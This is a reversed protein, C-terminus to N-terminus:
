KGEKVKTKYIVTGILTLGLIISVIWAVREAVGTGVSIIIEAKGTDDEGQKNNGPTSDIDARSAENIVEAIEATNAFIGTSTESMVKSLTLTVERSEGPYIIQGALSQTYLKGDQETWNSNTTELNFGSPLYDVISSVAGPENGENTVKITYDVLVKAGNIDRRHIEIKALNENNFTKENKGKSTYVTVKNVTKQLSLDFKRNQINGSNVNNGQSGNQGNNGGQTGGNGGTNGPPNTDGPNSSPNNASVRLKYTIASELGNSQYTNYVSLYHEFESLNETNETIKIKEIVQITEGAQLEYETSYLYKNKKELSGLKQNNKIISNEIIEAVHVLVDDIYFKKGITGRNTITTTFTIVDGTEAYEKVPTSTQTIQLNIRQQKATKDLSNSYYTNNGVTASAYFSYTQSEQNFDDIYGVNIFPCFDFVKGVAISDVHIQLTNGNEVVDYGDLQKKDKISTGEPLPITVTINNLTHNTLNKVVYNIPVRIGSEFIVEENQNMTTTLKLEADKIKNEMLNITQKDINDASIELTGKTVENNKRDPKISFDYQFSATEGSALNEQNKKMSSLTEDEQYFTAVGDEGTNPQHADVSVISFYNVNSNGSGDLQKAELSLNTVDNGTNNTVKVDYRITQGEYVEQGDSIESGITSPTAVVHLGNVDEVIEKGPNQGQITKIAPGQTAAIAMLQNYLAEKETDIIFETTSTQMVNTTNENTYTMEINSTVNQGNQTPTIDANILVQAGEIGDNFHATQEGILQIEIVKQGNIDILNTAGIEFEDSNLKSISNVNVSEVQEPLKIQLKPNKYLEQKENNSLLVADIEVNTPKLTTIKQTNIELKAESTPEKLEITATSTEKSLNTSLETSATLINANKLTTINQDTKCNLQKTNLVTFIGELQPRSTEIIVGAEGENYNITIIGNEDTETDKTVQSITEGAQNKVTVVFDEGLIKSLEEKNFQTQKYTINQMDNSKIEFKEVGEKYSVEIDNKEKYEIKKDENHYLYGKYLDGYLTTKVTALSGVPNVVVDEAIEKAIETEKSYLYTHSATKLTIPTPASALNTPFNYIITYETPESKWVINGEEDQKNQSVVKIVGTEADYQMEENTAKEGDILVVAWNPKQDLITPVTIEIQEKNQPLTNEVVETTIKQQLLTGNEGLNFFKEISQSLNIDSETSWKPKISTIGKYDKQRQNENEYKGELTIITEKEFYDAPFKDQKKFEIPVELSVEDNSSIKSLKIQNTEENVETIYKNGVLEDKKISFNPNDMTITGDELAVKDNVKIELCLNAIEGIKLHKQRTTVIGKGRFFASFEINSGKTSETEQLEDTATEAISIGTLAYNGTILCFLLLISIIKNVFKSNTLRSQKM